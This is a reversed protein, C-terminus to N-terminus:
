LTEDPEPVKYYLELYTGNHYDRESEIVLNTGGDARAKDIALQLKVIFDDLRILDVSSIFQVKDLQKREVNLEM